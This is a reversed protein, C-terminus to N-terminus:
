FVRIISAAGMHGSEGGFLPLLALLCALLRNSEGIGLCLGLVDDELGLDVVTDTGQGIIRPGGIRERRLDEPLVSPVIRLHIFIVNEVGASSPSDRRRRAPRSVVLRCATSIICHRQRAMRAKAM